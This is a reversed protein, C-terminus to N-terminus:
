GSRSETEGSSALTAAPDRPRARAAAALGVGALDGVQEGLHHPQRASAPDCGRWSPSAAAAGTSWRANSASACRSSASARASCSRNATAPPPARNDGAHDLLDPGRDGLPHGAPRRHEDDAAAVALQDVEAVTSAPWKGWSASPDSGPDGDWRRRPRSRGAPPAAPLAAGVVQDQRRGGVPPEVVVRLKGRVQAIAVGASPARRRCSRRARRARRWSTTRSSTPHARVSPEPCASYARAPRGCEPRQRSLVTGGPDETSTTLLPSAASTSSGPM